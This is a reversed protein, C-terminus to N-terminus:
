NFFYFNLFINELEQGGTVEKGITMYRLIESPVKIQSNSDFYIRFLLASCFPWM